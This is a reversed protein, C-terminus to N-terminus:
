SLHFVVIAWWGAKAVLHLAQDTHVGYWNECKGFDTIWHAVTELAGLWWVNTALAVAAGHTLAHAMLWYPWCPTYKVGPPLVSPDPRRNRNKGKAMSDSQLVFDAIAHGAFLWFILEFNM